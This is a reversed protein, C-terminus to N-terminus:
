EIKRHGLHKKEERHVATPLDDVHNWVRLAHAYRRIFLIIIESASLCLCHSLSIVHSTVPWGSWIQLISSHGRVHVGLDCESNLLCFYCFIAFIISIIEWAAFLNGTLVWVGCCPIMPGKLRAHFVHTIRTPPNSGVLVREKCIGVKTYLHKLVLGGIM